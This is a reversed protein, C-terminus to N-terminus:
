TYEMLVVIFKEVISAMIEAVIINFVHPPRCDKATAAKEDRDENVLGDM